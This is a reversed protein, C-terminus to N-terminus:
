GPRACGAGRGSRRRPSAGADPVPRILRKPSPRSRASNRCCRRPARASARSTPAIDHIREDDIRASGAGSSRRAGRRDHRDPQRAADGQEPRDAIMILQAFRKLDAIRRWRLMRPRSRSARMRRSAHCPVHHLAKHSRALVEGDSVPPGSQAPTARRPSSLDRLDARLGRGATAWGYNTGPSAPMSRPQPHPPVARRHAPDAGGGALVASAGVPVSLAAVGDDAAGAADSLQQAALAAQRDRRIQADPEEGRM